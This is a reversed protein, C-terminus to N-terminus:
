IHTYLKYSDHIVKFTFQQLSAHIHSRQPLETGYVTSLQQQSDYYFNRLTSPPSSHVVIILPPWSVQLCDISPTPFFPPHQSVTMQLCVRLLRAVACSVCMQIYIQINAKNKHQSLSRTWKVYFIIMLLYVLLVSFEHSTNLCSWFRTSIDPKANVYLMNSILQIPTASYSNENM